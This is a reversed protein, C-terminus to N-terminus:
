KGAPKQAQELLAQARKALDANGTTQTVKQLPEVLRPAVREANRRNKLLKDAITVVAACAEEKAAADDLYPTITALTGANGVSGLTGLFLKKEAASQILPAAKQVMSLRQDAPLEGQTALTFYSRLCVVKDAPSTASQAAALLDPAADATKWSGLAQIAAGRVEANSDSAAGRVAQLAKPGGIASLVGMLAGKQAPQAQSMLAAIQDASSEPNGAKACVSSVAQEAADLDSGKSKMLLDLLMPLQTLSAMEGFRKIATPRVKDDGELAVKQLAPLADLMRRRAILDIGTIRRASDASNLMALVVADVEKGPLAALSEQATQAIDRDSDGLLDLLGSVASAQGIMPIAKIAALRVAKPGTKAATFIAPLATADGRLGLAQLVVVKNDDALQTLGGTMVKTVDAGPMEMSARVAAAFEIYDSSGLYQKLLAIGDKGRAVIAGRVAGAHVQHPGQVKLLADYIADANRRSGKASMAEACRFLGECFALQNAAPTSPLADQIAKVAAPTAIKGLARAAAQAVEPDADGLFKALASVAKTDRRVGISAIVGILPRGKLNPLAARLADDVAPDPMTELGYRAMHNMTEDPLLAALAEVAKKTGIVGLQRCADAKEKQAADSKLVAILQDETQTVLPSEKQALATSVGAFWLVAVLALNLKSNLM